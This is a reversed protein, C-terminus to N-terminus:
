RPEDGEGDGMNVRIVDDISNGGRGGEAEGEAENTDREGAATGKGEGPGSSVISSSETLQGRDVGEKGSPFTRTTTRSHPRWVIVEEHDAKVFLGLPERANWVAGVRGRRKSGCMRYTVEGEKVIWTDYM